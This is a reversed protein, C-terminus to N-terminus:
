GNGCRGCGISTPTCCSSCRIKPATPISSVWGNFSVHAAGHPTGEMVSFAAYVTGLALTQAQNLLAFGPVGPAAQTLTNFSASRLIGPVSDTVWAVLPNSPDLVVFSASGPSRSTEGMFSRAFVKPAPEDFRWYHMSVSPDIAQLQRELDLLYSRHWPLFHPGSHEEGNAASVHM